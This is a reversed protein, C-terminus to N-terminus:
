ISSNGCPMSHAGYPTLECPRYICPVGEGEICGHVMQANQAMYVISRAHMDLFFVHSEEGLWIGPDCVM